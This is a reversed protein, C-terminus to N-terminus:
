AKQRAMNKSQIDPLYLRRGMITEVYGQQKALARIRDMYALVGQYR